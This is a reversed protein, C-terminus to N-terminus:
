TQPAKPIPRALYGAQVGVVNSKRNGFAGAGRKSRRGDARTGDGHVMVRGNTGHVVSKRSTWILINVDRAHATWLVRRTTYIDYVQL